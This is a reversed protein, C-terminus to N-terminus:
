KKISKIAEEVETDLVNFLQPKDNPIDYKMKTVKDFVGSKTLETVPIGAAV